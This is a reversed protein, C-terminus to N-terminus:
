KRGVSGPPLPLLTGIVVDSVGEGGDVRAPVNCTPSCSPLSYPDAAGLVASFGLDLLVGITMRSIPQTSSPLEAQPTMIEANFHSERWHAEVNVEVPVGDAPGGYARWEANGTTGYYRVSDTAEFQTFNQWLTGVGMAHAIEHWIVDRLFTTTTLLDAQDLKMQGTIAAPPQQRGYGCPGGQALTNVPGDINGISMLIAVDEISAGNLLSADVLGCSSPGSPNLGFPPYTVPDGADGTVVQEWRALAQNLATITNPPPLDGGNYAVWINFASSPRTSITIAYSESLTRMSNTATVEFFYVGSASPIGTIRATSSSMALGSPLAGKAVSYTFPGGSGPAPGVADSYAVGTYGGVLYAPPLVTGVEVLVNRTLSAGGPAAQVTVTTVGNRRAIVEGTSTNVTAVAPDLTEFTVSVGSLQSGGADRVTATITVTDGATVRLTDPSVSLTTGDPGTGGGSCATLVVLAAALATRASRRADVPHNNLPSDV